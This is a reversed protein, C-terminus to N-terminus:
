ANPSSRRNQQALACYLQHLVVITVPFGVLWKVTRFFKVDTFVLRAIFLSFLFAALFASVFVERIAMKSNSDNSLEFPFSSEPNLAKDLERKVEKVINSALPINSSHAEWTLSPEMRSISTVSTEWRQARFPDYKYEVYKQRMEMFRDGFEGELNRVDNKSVNYFVPIVFLRNENVREKMKVLEDLCWETEPYCSSFIALAITSEEICTFVHGLDRGWWEDRDIFINLIGLESLGWVLHRMFDDPLETTGSNIFVQPPRARARARTPDVM